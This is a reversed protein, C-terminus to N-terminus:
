NMKLNQVYVTLDMVTKVTYKYYSTQWLNAKSYQASNKVLKFLSFKVIDKLIRLVNPQAIHRSSIGTNGVLDIVIDLHGSVLCWICFYKYSLYQMM